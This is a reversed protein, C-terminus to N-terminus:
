GKINHILNLIREESFMPYLDQVLYFVDPQKFTQKGKTWGVKNKVEDSLMSEVKKSTVGLMVAIDTKNWSILNVTKTAMCNIKNQKVCQM